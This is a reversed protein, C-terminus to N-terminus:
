RAKKLREAQRRGVEVASVGIKRAIEAYAKKRDNNEATVVKAKDGVEAAKRIELFGSSGEVVAGSRVLETIIPRRMETRARIERAEDGRAIAFSVVLLSIIIGHKALKM